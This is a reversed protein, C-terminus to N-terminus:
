HRLSRQSRYWDPTFLAHIESLATSNRLSNQIIDSLMTEHNMILSDFDQLQQACHAVIQM